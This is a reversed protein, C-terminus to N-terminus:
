TSVPTLIDMPITSTESIAISTQKSTSETTSVQILQHNMAHKRVTENKGDLDVAMYCIKNTQKNDRPQRLKKAKLLQNLKTLKGTETIQRTRWSHQLNNAAGVQSIEEIYTNTNYMLSKTERSNRQKNNDANSVSTLITTPKTSTKSITITTQEPTLETTPLAM